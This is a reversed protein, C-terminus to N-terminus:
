SFVCAGLLGGPKSAFKQLTMCLSGFLSKLIFTKLCSLVWLMVLKVKKIQAMQSLLMQFTKLLRLIYENLRPICLISKNLLYCNIIECKQIEFCLNM